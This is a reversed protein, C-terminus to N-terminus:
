AAAEQTVGVDQDCTKCLEYPSTQCKDLDDTV